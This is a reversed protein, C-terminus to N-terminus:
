AIEQKTQLNYSVQLKHIIGLNHVAESQRARAIYLRFRSVALSVLVGMVVVAAMLEVISFANKM